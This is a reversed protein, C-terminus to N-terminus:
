GTHSVRPGQTAAAPTYGRVAGRGKGLRGLQAQTTHLQHELLASTDAQLAGLRALLPAVERPARAPLAAVLAGREAAIAELEQPDARDRALDNEREALRVLREYLPTLDQM